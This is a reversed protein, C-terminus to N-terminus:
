VDDQEQPHTTAIRREILAAIELALPDIPSHDTDLGLLWAPTVGLAKSLGWVARVTPNRSKGNELEWVHGKTFGSAAGLEELSMNRAQRTSRIREQFSAMDPMMGGARGTTDPNTM